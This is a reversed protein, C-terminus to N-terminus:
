YHVGAAALFAESLEGRGMKDILEEAVQVIGSLPGTILVLGLQLTVRKDAIPNTINPHEPPLLIMQIESLDSPMKECDGGPSIYAFLEEPSALSVSDEKLLTDGDRVTFEITIPM